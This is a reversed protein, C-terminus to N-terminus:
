FEEDEWVFMWDPQPRISTDYYSGGQWQQCRGCWKCVRYFNVVGDKIEKLEVWSHLCKM